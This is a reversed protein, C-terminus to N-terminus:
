RHSETRESEKIGGDHGPGSSRRDGGGDRAMLPENEGPGSFHQQLLRQPVGYLLDKGLLTDTNGSGTSPSPQHESSATASEQSPGGTPSGGGRLSFSSTSQSPQAPDPRFTASTTTAVYDTRADERFKTHFRKKRVAPWISSEGYGLCRSQSSDAPLQLLVCCPEAVQLTAATASSAGSPQVPQHGQLDLPAGEVGEVSGPPNVRRTPLRNRLTGLLLLLSLLMFDGAGCRILLLCTHQPLQELFSAEFLLAGVSDLAGPSSSQHQNRAAAAWRMM